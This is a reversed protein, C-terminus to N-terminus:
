GEAPSEASVAPIITNRPQENREFLLPMLILLTPVGFLATLALAHGSSFQLGYWCIGFWVVFLLINFFVAILLARTSPVFLHHLNDTTLYNSGKDQHFTVTEGDERVYASGQMEPIYRTKTEGDADPILLATTIYISSNLIFPEDPNSVKYFRGNRNEAYVYPITEEMLKGDPGNIQLQHVAEFQQVDQVDTPQMDFFTGYKDKHSARTNAYTWGTLFTAMIFGCAVARVPLMGVPESYLYSQVSVAVLWFLATLALACGFFTLILTM